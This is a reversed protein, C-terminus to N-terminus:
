EFSLAEVHVDLKSWDPVAVLLDHHQPLKAGPISKNLPTRAAADITFAKVNVAREAGRNGVRVLSLDPSLTIDVEEGPAAAAGEIAVARVQDGVLRSLTLNFAKHRSPTFRIQTGDGNIALVDEQGPATDVNELSVAAGSPMITNFTYKGNGTGVIRRTLPTGEPLLYMGPVLYAPHSGPIEAIIQGGFNGTRLGLGDTVQLDAPSLLFDVIFRTLGLHGSFPLDHDALLYQGNTMMGLTVGDASSFIPTTHGGGFYEFHLVGDIEKFVLRCNPDQPYNCDWVYLQVGDLPTSTTTGDGTLRPGPHSLPYVFRYPMVCHSSGLKDIYGDDWVAGAPIFFLMPANDRDCGRLFTAEVERATKEVRSVGERGQDHFHILSERSLLKGHVATLWRHVSDRTVTTADSEGKWFKDAVLATLSTCFGTALGGRAKGKLFYKYFEFYLATLVPHGFVPDLLEHWVEAAGFTQEFTGWDPVGEAFNVFTLNHVGYRFPVELIRPTSATRPNSVRGDPNRVQVTVSGGVQGEGDTDPMEFTLRTPGEYTAPVAEGDILVAADPLFAQGTLTVRTKPAFLAPVADLRPKVGVELRNSETGDPRRVFVPHDGGGIAAPVTVSIREDPHITPVLTYPGVIVRDDPVFRSGRIILQDGPFVEAPTLERIWPRTLVENWADESFEFFSVSGDLGAHAGQPGQPGPQGTAGNRGHQADKCTEGIGARGGRGGAGGAGGPGGPGQAGGQNKIKFARQQVTEALTGELVGITINGGNGGDGGRGGQGGNGGDGGHGGHGPREICFWGVFPLWMRKGTAGDAGNGGKGGRQGRGGPLGNEGNLDIDPVATLRKAWIELDPADKGRAGDIGRAGSRGPEGDLGDKGNAKTHVGAYGRGNLAPDDARPPTSGGPRRWTIRANPGCVLEECIIYVKSVTPEIRLEINTLDLKNAIVVASHLPITTMAFMKVQPTEPSPWEAPNDTDLVDVLAEDKLKIQDGAQVFLDSLPITDLLERRLTLNAMRVEAPLITGADIRVPPEATGAGSTAQGSAISRINVNLVRSLDLEPLRVGRVPQGTPADPQPQAPVAGPSASPAATGSSAQPQTSTGEKALSQLVKASNRNTLTTALAFRKEAAAAKVVVEAIKSWDIKPQSQKKPAVIMTGPELVTPKDIRFDELDSLKEVGAANLIDRIPQLRARAYDVVLHVQVNKIQTKRTFEAAIAQAKVSLEAAAAPTATAIGEHIALDEIEGVFPYAAGDIWAGIVFGTKGVATLNGSSAATGVTRGDIQLELKGDPHRMFRVSATKGEVLKVQGSDVSVWKNTHVSGVLQGDPQIFLAIPPEQAEVINRRSGASKRPTVTAEITFSQMNALRPNKALEVTGGQDLRLGHGGQLITVNRLSQIAVGLTSGDLVHRGDSRLQFLTTRSM